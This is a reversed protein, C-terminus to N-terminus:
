RSGHCTVGKLRHPQYCVALKRQPPLKHYRYRVSPLVTYVTNNTATPECTGAGVAALWLKLKLHPAAPPPPSLPYYINMNSQLVCYV